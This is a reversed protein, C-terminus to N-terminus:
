LEDISCGLDLLAARARAAGLPDVPVVIISGGSGTYNASAGSARAVEVMEVHARDLTYVGARQDFTADVAAALAEVDGRDIADAAARGAEGAREMARRLAPNSPDVAAHVLGSDGATAPRCAVFLGDPLADLSRYTGVELGHVQRLHVGGFEMAVVGGLAQVVRDQLGAAIGLVNREADLALSAIVEPEAQLVNAWAETRHAAIMTRIAGIVIASSGALGVSRPITSSVEFRHPTLHAGLRRRLVVLAAQVLPQDGSDATGDLQRGDLRRRGDLWTAVDDVSGFTSSFGAFEFRRSPTATVTARLSPVVTAVVAGGHRDSPNGALAARAPVTSTLPTTSM